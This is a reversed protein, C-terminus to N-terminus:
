EQRETEIFKEEKVYGYGKYKNKNIKLDKTKSLEALVDQSYIPNKKWWFRNQTWYIIHSDLIGTNRGNKKRSRKNWFLRETSTWIFLTVDGFM